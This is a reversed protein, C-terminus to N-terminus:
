VQRGEPPCPALRRGDAHRPGVRRDGGPLGGEGLGAPPQDRRREPGGEGGAEGVAEVELEDVAEGLLAAEGLEDGVELGLEGALERALEVRAQAEGVERGAVVRAEQQHLPQGLGQAVVDVVALARGPGVDAELLEVRQGVLAERGQGAPVAALLTVVVEDPDQGDARALEGREAIPVALGLGVEADALQELAREPARVLGRAEEEVGVQGVGEVVGRGPGPGPDQEGPGVRDDVDAVAQEQAEGVEALVVLRREQGQEGVQERGVVVVLGLGLSAVALRELEAGLQGRRELAEAPQQRALAPELVRDLRQGSGRAARVDGGIPRGVVRGRGRARQDLEAAAVLGLLHQHGRELARGLGLARQELEGAEVVAEVALEVLRPDEIAEGVQRQRAHEPGLDAVTLRHQQGRLEAGVRHGLGALPRARQQELGDAGVRHMGLGALDQELQGAGARLPRDDRVHVEEGDALQGRARAPGQGVEVEGVGVEIPEAVRLRGDAVEAGRELLGRDVDDDDVAGVGQRRAQAVGALDGLPELLERAAGAPGLEALRHGVCGSGPQQEDGAVEVQAVVRELRGLGRGPGRGLQGLQGGLQALPGLLRELLDDLDVLALEVEALPALRQEVLEVLGLRRDLPQLHEGTQALGRGPEAVALVELLQGAALELEGM